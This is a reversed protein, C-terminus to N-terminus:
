RGEGEDPNLRGERGRGEGEDPNLRGEGGGGGGEDPNLAEGRTRPPISPPSSYISHLFPWLPPFIHTSLSRSSM